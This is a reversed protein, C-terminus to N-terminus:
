VGPLAPLAQNIPRLCVFTRLSQGGQKKWDKGAAYKHFEKSLPRILASIFKRHLM